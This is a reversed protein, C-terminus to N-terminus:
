PRAAGSVEVVIVKGALGMRAKNPAVVGIRAVTVVPKPVPLRIPVTVKVSVKLLPAGVDVESDIPEVTEVVTSVAVDENGIEVSCTPTCLM